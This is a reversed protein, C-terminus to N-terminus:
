KRGRSVQTIQKEKDLKQLYFRLDKTQFRQEKKICTNLAVSRGRSVAKAQTECTKIAELKRKM